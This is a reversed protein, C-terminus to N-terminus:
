APPRIPRGRGFDGYSSRVLVSVLHRGAATHTRVVLGTVHHARDLRLLVRALDQDHPLGAREAARATLSGRIAQHRAPGTVGTPTLGDLVALLTASPNVIARPHSLRSWRGPVPRVYTGRHIRVVQTVRKGVRLRYAVGNGRVVRGTVVTHAAGKARVTTRATFDYSRQRATVEAAQQLLRTAAPDAPPASAPTTTPTPRDAPGSSSTCGAVLATLLSVVVALPAVTPRAGRRLDSSSM